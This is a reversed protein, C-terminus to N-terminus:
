IRDSTIHVFSANEQMILSIKMGIHNNPQRKLLCPEDRGSPAKISATLQSLDTETIDLAFDAASGLKM